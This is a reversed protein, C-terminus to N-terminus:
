QTLRREPSHPSRKSWCTARGNAPLESSIQPSAAACRGRRAEGAGAVGGAAYAGIAALPGALEGASNRDFPLYVGSTIRAIDRFVALPTPQERGPEEHFVFAKTGFLVLATDPEFSWQSEVVALGAPRALGTESALGAVPVLGGCPSSSHSSDDFLFAVVQM